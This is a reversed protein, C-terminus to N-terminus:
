IRRNKCTLDRKEKEGIGCKRKKLRQKLRWSTKETDKTKHITNDIHSARFTKTPDPVTKKKGQIKIYKELLNLDDTHRKNYWHKICTHM